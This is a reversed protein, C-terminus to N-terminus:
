AWPRASAEPVGSAVIESSFRAVDNLRLCCGYSSNSPDLDAFPFFELQLTGKSLITWGADRWIQTFGLRVYFASTVDFNRSPLNPTARDKSM